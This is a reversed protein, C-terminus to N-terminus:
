TWSGGAGKSLDPGGGLLERLDRDAQLLFERPLTDDFLLVRPVAGPLWDRLTAFPFIGTGAFLNSRERNHDSLIVLRLRGSLAEAWRQPTPDDFEARLGLAGTALAVALSNGSFEPLVWELFELDDLAAPDSGVVITVRLGPHRGLLGHVRRCFREAAGERQRRMRQRFQAVSERSAAQDRSAAAPPKMPGTARLFQDEASREEPILGGRGLTLLLDPCRLDKQLAVTRELVEMARYGDEELLRKSVNALPGVESQFITPSVGVLPLAATAVVARLEGPAFAPGPGELLLGDPSFSALSKIGAALGARATTHTRTSLPFM